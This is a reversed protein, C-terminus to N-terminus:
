DGGFLLHSIVSGTEVLTPQREMTRRGTEALRRAMGPDGAIRRMAAAAQDLDPEAWKATPPYV